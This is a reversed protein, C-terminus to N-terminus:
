LGALAEEAALLDLVEDGEAAGDGILAIRQAEARQDTTREDPQGLFFDCVGNHSQRSLFAARRRPKM